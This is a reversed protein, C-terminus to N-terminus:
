RDLQVQIGADANELILGSADTPVDFVMAIRYTEGGALDEDAGDDYATQLLLNTARGDLEYTNGDSDTVTWADYGFAGSVDDPREVQLYVVLYIGDAASGEIESTTDTKTFTLTGEASDIADGLQSLDTNAVATA